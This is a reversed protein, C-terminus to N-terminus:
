KFDERVPHFIDIIKCDTLAKGSHATNGPILAVKGAEMINSKGDIVLEFQGEQVISFQENPHKHEPMVSGKNINWHSSTMNKGHIFKLEFGPIPFRSEIDKLSFTPM